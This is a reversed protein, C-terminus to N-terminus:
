CCGSELFSEPVFLSYLFFHLLAQLSSFLLQLATDVDCGTAKNSDRNLYASFLFGLSLCACIFVLQTNSSM